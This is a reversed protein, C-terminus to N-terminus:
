WDWEARWRKRFVSEKLLGAFLATRTKKCLLPLRGARALCKQKIRHLPRDHLLRYAMARKVPMPLGTSVQQWTQGELMATVLQERTIQPGNREGRMFIGKKRM